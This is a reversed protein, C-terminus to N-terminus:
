VGLGGPSTIYRSAQDIDRPQAPSLSQDSPDSVWQCWSCPRPMPPLQAHSKLKKLGDQGVFIWIQDFVSTPALSKQFCKTYAEKLYSNQKGM